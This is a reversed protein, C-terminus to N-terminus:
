NTKRIDFRQRSLVVGGLSPRCENIIALAIGM